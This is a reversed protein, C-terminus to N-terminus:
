TDFSTYLRRAMKLASDRDYIEGAAQAETIQELIIGIKHGPKYGLETILDNGDVISAPRILDEYRDYYGDLLVFMATLKREWLSHPIQPGYESVIEALTLLGMEIAVTSYKRFYQHIARAKTPSIRDNQVLNQRRNLSDKAVSLEEPLNEMPMMESVMKCESKSLKLLDVFKQPKSSMSLSRLLIALYMLQYRKRRNSKDSVTESLHRQLEIRFQGVTSAFLGLTYECAADKTKSTFVISILQQLARFTTLAKDRSNANWDPLIYRMMNLHSLLSVAAFPDESALCRMFEDRVRETSVQGLKAVHKRIAITTSPEIKFGTQVAIRIARILRIPDDPFSKESIMRIINKHIHGIGGTPDVLEQPDRCRMAIGNITFDRALMDADMGDSHLCSIDVVTRANDRLLVRGVGRKDDLTFYDGGLNDAVSRACSLANGQIVFDLDDVPQNLLMARIAGGVLWVRDFDKDSFAQCVQQYVEPFQIEKSILKSSNM